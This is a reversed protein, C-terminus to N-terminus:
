REDHLGSCASPNPTGSRNLAVSMRIACTNVSDSLAARVPGGIEDLLIKTPKSFAKPYNALLTSYRPPRRM